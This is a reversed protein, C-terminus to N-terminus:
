RTFDVGTRGNPDAYRCELLLMLSLFGYWMVPREKGRGDRTALEAIAM